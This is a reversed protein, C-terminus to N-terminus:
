NVFSIFSKFSGRMVHTSLSSFPLINAIFYEVARTTSLTTKGIIAVNNETIDVTFADESVEQVLKSAAIESATRNTSGILIEKTNEASTSDSYVSLTIGLTDEISASLKEARNIISNDADAGYVISFTSIDITNVPPEKIPPEKAPKGCSTIPSCLLAILM